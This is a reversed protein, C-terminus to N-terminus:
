KVHRSAEERASSPRGGAAASDRETSIGRTELKQKLESLFPEYKRWSGVSSTYIGERVQSASATLSASTNARIDVAADKWALGCRTALRKAVATTDTALDEYDVCILRDPYLQGWHRMLGDYAAYYRALDDFAYSFPYAGGFLTRYMAFCSDIPNRRVWVVSADAYTRMIAGIYLYNMPLKEIVWGDREGAGSLQDYLQAVAEFDAAACREFVTGGGAPAHRLLATSFNDTENNSRVNSLGGLIRETLTTGSRPLGVIFIHQRGSAPPERGTGNFVQGIAALKKEDTAVDYRLHRRRLAAGRSFAPCAEEYRGLEHLEKGLAYSLFMADIERPSNTLRAQLDSVNNRDPTARALESRLLVAPRFDPDLQLSRHCADAASELRGLSRESTAFNYWIQADRSNLQTAKLYLSNSLDHKGLQRAFFGLADCADPERCPLQLAHDLIATAETTLGLSVLAELHLSHAPGAEEADRTWTELRSLVEAARGSRIKGAAESLQASSPLM